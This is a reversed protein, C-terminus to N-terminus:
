EEYKGGMKCEKWNEKMKSSRKGLNETLLISSRHCYGGFENIGRYLKEIWESM